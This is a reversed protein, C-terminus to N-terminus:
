MGCSADVHLQAVARSKRTHWAAGWVRGHFARKAELLFQSRGHPKEATAAGQCIIYSCGGPGSEPRDLVKARVTCFFQLSQCPPM